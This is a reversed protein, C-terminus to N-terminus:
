QIKTKYPLYKFFDNKIVNVPKLLLLFLFSYILYMNLKSKNLYEKIFIAYLFVEFLKFIRSVRQSFISFDIFAILILISTLYVKSINIYILNDSKYIIYLSIITIIIRELIGIVGIEYSSGYKENESYMIIIDSLQFGPIFSITEILLNTLGSTYFSIFISCYIMFNLKSKKILFILPFLFGIIATYHILSACIIFFYAKSKKGEMLLFFCYFIIAIALAQRIQGMVGGLFYQILFVYLVITLDQNSKKISKYLFYFTFFSILALFGNFNLGIFKSFVIILNFLPEVFIEADLNAKEFYSLYGLFDAGINSRLSAILIAIFSIFIFINKKTSKKVSFVVSLFSLIFFFIYIM